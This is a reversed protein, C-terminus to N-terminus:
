VYYYIGPTDFTHSFEKNMKSKKPLTAGPPGAIFEVNHGKSQLGESYARVVTEAGGPAPPYRVCGQIINVSFGYLAGKLGGVKGRYQGFCTIHAARKRPM